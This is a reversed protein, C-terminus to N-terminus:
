HARAHSSFFKCFSLSKYFHLSIFHFHHSVSSIHLIISLISVDIDEWSSTLLTDWRWKIEGVTIDLWCSTEYFQTKFVLCLEDSKERLSISFISPSFSSSTPSFPLEGAWLCLMMWFKLSGTSHCSYCLSCRQNYWCWWPTSSAQDNM